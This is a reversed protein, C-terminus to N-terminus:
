EKVNDIDCYWYGDKYIPQSCIIPKTELQQECVSLKNNLNKINTDSTIKMYVISTFVLFFVICLAITNITKAEM